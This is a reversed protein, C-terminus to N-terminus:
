DLSEVSEKISEAVNTGLSECAVALQESLKKKQGKGMKEIDLSAMTCAATVKRTAMFEGISPSLMDIVRKAFESPVYDGNM